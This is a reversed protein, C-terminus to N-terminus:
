MCNGPHVKQLDTLGTFKAIFDALVHGKIASRPKYQIDFQTLEIALKLLHVFSDPKQLVQKLLYKTLVDIRHAQFYPRLKRSAVVLYYALKKMPTYRTEVNILRHSVYCVPYQVRDEKRM